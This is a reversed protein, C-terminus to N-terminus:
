QYNVLRLSKKQDKKAREQTRPPEYGAVVRIGNRVGFRYAIHKYLISVYDMNTHKAM